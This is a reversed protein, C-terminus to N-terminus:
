AFEFDGELESGRPSRGTESTLVRTSGLVESLDSGGGCGARTSGLVGSRGGGGTTISLGMAM